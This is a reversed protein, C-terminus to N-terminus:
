YTLSHNQTMSLSAIYKKIHGDYLELCLFIVGLQICMFIQFNFSIDIQSLIIFKISQSFERLTMQQCHLFCFSFNRLIKIFLFYILFFVCFDFALNVQPDLSIFLASFHREGKLIQEVLSSSNWLSDPLVCPSLLCLEPCIELTSDFLLNGWISIFRSDWLQVKVTVTFGLM